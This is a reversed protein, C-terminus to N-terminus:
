RAFLSRLLELNEVIRDLNTVLEAFLAILSIAAACISVVLAAISRRQTRDPKLFMLGKLPVVTTNVEPHPMGDMTRMVSTGEEDSLSLLYGKKVCETLVELEDRTPPSSLYPEGNAIHRVMSKMAAEYDHATKIM